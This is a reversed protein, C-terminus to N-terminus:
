RNQAKPDVLPDNHSISVEDAVVLSLGQDLVLNIDLSGNVFVLFHDLGESLKLLPAVACLIDGKFGTCRAINTIDTKQCETHKM